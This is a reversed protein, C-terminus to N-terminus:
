AAKLKELLKERVTSAQAKGQTKKMVQGVLWNFLKDTGDYKSGHESYVEEVATDVVSEDAKVYKPDNLIERISAEGMLWRRTIDKFHKKEFIEYTFMLHGMMYMFGDSLLEHLEVGFEEALALGDNIMLTALKQSFTRGREGLDIADNPNGKFRSWETRAEVFGKRDYRTDYGYVFRDDEGTVTKITEDRYM